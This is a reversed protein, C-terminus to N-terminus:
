SHTAFCLLCWVAEFPMCAGTVGHRCACGSNARGPTVCVKPELRDQIARLGALDMIILDLYQSVAVSGSRLAKLDYIRISEEDSLEVLSALIGKVQVM